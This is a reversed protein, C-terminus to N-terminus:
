LEQYEKAAKIEIRILDPNTPDSRIQSQISELHKWARMTNNEVDAFLERNLQKLPQKLLKLKRVFKFMPTGTIRHGWAQTVCPLFHETTSWMNFYKFSGKMQGMDSLRQIICPTHDFCGEPHFHAYFEKKQDIWEHNVLARDLRSFVRTAAEQKNNWTFLSGTTPMDVMHCVDLCNQFDEMEEETTSGGLRESPALVTNFDGCILWPSHIHGSMDQLRSWLSKRESLGNFAYVMTLYFQSGTALEHVLVHIFQANYEIFQLDFLNPKWLLWVRGGKHYSSNTSLCWGICINSSIKNLSSPKVKTELLGFLGVQHHHLFWKIHKQKAPSNLGRVNWFGMMTGGGRIPPILGTEIGVKPTANNLADMFTYQGFKAAQSGQDLLEQRSLRIVARAPTALPISGTHAGSVRPTSVAPVIKPSAPVRPVTVKPSPPKTVPVQSQPKTVPVKPQWRQVVKQKPKTARKPKKCANDIHGIGGCTKCLIPLWEFEVNITVLNGAEDLFKVTKPPHQNFSVDILVRAYGLRTRAETQEDSRVYDGILGSIKPIGQGWFKLPLNLLRVWVLVVLVDSKTLPDQDNWPHVILPKNEFLFHGHNLVAEQDKSRKFRVLFVGSPMFFIRDIGYEDWLGLIFEEVVDWPPNGGLIFCIVSNKWFALEKQVESETFQLM